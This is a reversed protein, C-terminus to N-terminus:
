AHRHSTGHQYAGPEPEFGARERRVELGLQRVMADLVDDHAYRIWGSGIELPVHRNGLHYSARTLTLQNESHATSVDEEAARVEIVLGDTTRLRDGGHLAEGRGLRLAVERGDDLRLRLRSKQRQDFSLTVTAQAELPGDLKEVVQLM